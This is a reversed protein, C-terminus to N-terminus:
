IAASLRLMGAVYEVYEESEGAERMIDKVSIERDRRTNSWAMDHSMETLEDFSKDKCMAIAHDLCEIDTESLRDTDARDPSFSDGRVAKFLDDIHSPVPGFEMAIYTDGTVGRGYRALHERDAFYLTMFIKHMDKRDGVREAVYLVAEIAAQKNFNSNDM